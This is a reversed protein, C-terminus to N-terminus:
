HTARVLPTGNGGNYPGIVGKQIALVVAQPVTRAGMKAMIKLWDRKISSHNRLVILGMEKQRYGDRAFGLLKRELDTFTVTTKYTILGNNM